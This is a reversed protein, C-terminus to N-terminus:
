KGKRNMLLVLVLIAAAGILIPTYNASAAPVLNGNADMKYGPLKGQAWATQLATKQAPALAAMGLQTGSKIATGVLTKLAADLGAFWSPDAAQTGAPTTVAAPANNADVQSWDYNSWDYGGSDGAMWDTDGTYDVVTGGTGYDYTDNGYYYDGSPDDGFASFRGGPCTNCGFLHSNPALSLNRESQLRM